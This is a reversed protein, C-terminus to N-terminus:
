AAARRHAPLCAPLCHLLCCPPSQAPPHACHTSKRNSYMAHVFQVPAHAHALAPTSAAPCGGQAPLQSPRIVALHPVCEASAGRQIGSRLSEVLAGPTPNSHGRAHLWLSVWALAPCWKASPSSAVPSPMLTQRLSLALCSWAQRRVSDSGQSWSQLVQEPTRTARAAACTSLAARGPLKLFLCQRCISQFATESSPSDATTQAGICFVREM